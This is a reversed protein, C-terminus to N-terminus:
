SCLWAWQDYYEYSKNLRTVVFELMMQSAPLITAFFGSRCEVWQEGEMWCHGCDSCPDETFAPQVVLTELHKFHVPVSTQEIRIPRNMQRLNKQCTPKELTRRKKNRNSQQQQRQWKREERIRKRQSKEERKNEEGNWSVKGTWYGDWKDFKIWNWNTRPM